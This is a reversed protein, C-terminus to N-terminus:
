RGIVVREISSLDSRSEVRAFGADRVLEAVAGAQGAGVELAIAEGRPRAALLARIQDLGDEGALLAERPEFERIEPQLGEWDGTGIYPLNALVIDFAAAEEAESGPAAQPPLMGDVFSVRDALGLREANHRALDLAGASTDTATVVAEPLEDAVALAVAGSGTGVDLVSTPALELAIEVLLETEPRPILARPDVALEIRRFGKRGTIYALPERRLRRRVNAAFERGAAGEVPADPESALRTRDWGTAECLLLEADLRPSDVGAAALADTAGHLADRAPTATAAATV